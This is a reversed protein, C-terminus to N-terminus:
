NLVHGKVLETKKQKLVHAYSTQTSVCVVAFCALFKCALNQLLKDQNITVLNKSTCVPLFFHCSSHCLSTVSLFYENGFYQIIYSKIKKEEMIITCQKEEENGRM